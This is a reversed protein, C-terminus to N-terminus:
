GYQRLFATSPLRNRPIKIDYTVQKSQFRFWLVVNLNGADLIFPDGWKCLGSHFTHNKVSRPLNRLRLLIGNLEYCFKTVIKKERFGDLGLIENLDLWQVDHGEYKNLFSFM